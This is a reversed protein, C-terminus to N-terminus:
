KPIAGLQQLAGFINIQEWLEELLGNKLRHIHIASIVLEKGTAPIGFYAGQHTGQATWRTVVKDGEGIQDEIIVKLDPFAGHSAKISDLYGSLNVTHGSPGYATFDPAFIAEFVKFDRNMLVEVYYRTVIEKNMETGM